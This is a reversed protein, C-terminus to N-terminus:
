WYVTKKLLTRQACMVPVAEIMTTNVAITRPACGVLFPIKAYELGRIGKCCISFLLDRGSFVGQEKLSVKKLASMGKM